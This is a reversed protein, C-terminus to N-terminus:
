PQKLERPLYDRKGITIYYNQIYAAITDAQARVRESSLLEEKGAKRGRYSYVDILERDGFVYLLSDTAANYVNGFYMVAFPEKDPQNILDHGFAFFPKDYGTMGLVTPMIDIHGAVGEYRGKLKGSPTYFLIPISHTYPLTRYKENDSGSAHDACIIFLTNEYWPYKSIRGFFDRLSYDSYAIMRDIPQEGGVEYFREMGPPLVYPHHSSLTFTTSMFPEKFDKMKEAVFPLFKHDWVGWKGDFDGGGHEAEYDERFLFNDVGATQGFAKFSMSTHVAGHSFYTSYGMDKLCSPLAKYEGVSQPLSLFNHEFSPISAWVAPMADISRGGSQFANSLLWGERALSDIFPTISEKDAPYQDSLAKIHASGFSELTLIIINPHGLSVRPAAPPIRTLDVLEAVREAPMYSVKKVKKKSTRIVCFPNSLVLSSQSPKAYIAADSMTIPFTAKSLTFGRIAFICFGISLALILTQVPYFIFDNSIRSEPRVRILRFGVFWLAVAMAILALFGAWYDKLFDSMLLSMNGESFFHFEDSTIRLMKYPYYYIDAINMMLAATNLVVFVVGISAQYWGKTRFRFPLLSLAIFLINVYFISASDFMFAGRLIGPLESWSVGGLLEANHIWFGLRCLAFLIYLLALRLALATFNGTSLYKKCCNM